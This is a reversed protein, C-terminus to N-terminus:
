FTLGPLDLIVDPTNQFALMVQFLPHRALSRAPNVLEVLREFPIDQHAYAALDTTRVRTLLERFTPDGSTDTRLVLTNAFFGVLDDLQEDTRGAIPTGIPVDEGAGLASLMAALAAHVVMFVSTRAQRALEVLGRHLEADWHIEVRGGRHSAMPPRPRDAPLTLEEPLGALARRWYALQEGAVSSEEAEDGLLERQWLAYDAYQVPLPEWAPARGATRAAYATGLDRALPAMSWGDAAIHHMVLLLVSESANRVFLSARLPLDTALDF